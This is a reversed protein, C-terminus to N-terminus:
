KFEGKIYQLCEDAFDFLHEESYDEVNLFTAAAKLAEARLLEERTPVDKKDPDSISASISQLVNLENNTM